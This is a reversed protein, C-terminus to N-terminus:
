TRWEATYVTNDDPMEMAEVTGHGPLHDNSLQNQTDFIVKVLHNNGHLVYKTALEWSTAIPYNAMCDQLFINPLNANVNKDTAFGLIGHSYKLAGGWQDDQLVWCADM